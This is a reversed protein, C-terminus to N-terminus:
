LDRVRIGLPRVSRARDPLKKCHGLECLKQIIRHINGRGKDGTIYMIDDISPGYGFERWYEEIVIYIDKQKPTMGDVSDDFYGVDSFYGM